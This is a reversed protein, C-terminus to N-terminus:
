TEAYRKVRAIRWEGPSMRTVTVDDEIRHLAGSAKIRDIAIRVTAHDHSQEVVRQVEVVAVFGEHAACVRRPAPRCSFADERAGLTGGIAGVMQQPATSLLLDGTAPGLVIMVKGTPVVTRVHSLAAALATPDLAPQQASSSPAISVIGVLVLTALRTM